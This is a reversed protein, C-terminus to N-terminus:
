IGCGALGAEEDRQDSPLCVSPDLTGFLSINPDFSGWDLGVVNQLVTTQNQISHVLSEAPSTYLSDSLGQFQGFGAEVALNSPAAYLSLTTVVGTSPLTAPARSPDHYDVTQPVFIHLTNGPNLRLSLPDTPSGIHGTSPDAAGARLEAARATISGLGSLGYIDLGASLLLTNSASVSQLYLSGMPALLEINGSSGGSAHVTVSSLGSSNLANIYIGGAISTANLTLSDINLRPSFDVGAATVTSAAGISRALLTLSRAQIPSSNTGDTITGASATLTAADGVNVSGVSLNGSSATLGANGSARVNALVLGNQNTVYLDGQSAAADLTTINTALAASAAGISGGTATLSAATVTGGSGEVISGPSATTGATLMVAGTGGNIAGNVSIDSGAGGAVLTVGNASASNVTISGDNTQVNLTGGSVSSSLAVGDSEDIYTSGNLSSTTLTGVSTNLPNASTGLTSGTATLAAGIIQGGTGTTIAGPATRTGAVLTVDGSTSLVGDLSITGGAGGATLAVPGSGGSLAGNVDISSNTATLTVGAGTASNVALLGDSQVDLVGGTASATLAVAGSDDVFIGGNSSTASVTTANTSMATTGSGISGATLQLTPASITSGADATIAGTASLSVTDAEGDIAGSVLIGAAGLTVGEGTASTVVLSGNPVQVNVTGNIAAATLALPATSTGNLFIGGDTTSAAVTGSGVNLASGATGIASATLLTENASVLNGTGAVIAGTAQLQAEAGATVPGDVTLTNGAGTVILDVNNGTVSTVTLSSNPTSVQVTGGPASATLNLAGTNVLYIDGTNATADVAAVTTNLPTGQIGIFAGTVDLSSGSVSGGNSVIEAQATLTVASGNGNVAGDLALAGGATLTVGAGSVSSVTLAGNAAVDIPGGSSTATVNLFAADSVYIGGVSSTAVLNGVQTNLAAGPSGIASGSVTLQNSVLESGVGAVVVGSTAQIYAPGSTTVLAGPNLDIDSGTGTTILDVAGSGGNVTGNVLVDAGPGSTTLVVGSGGGVSNATLSGSTGVYVKGTANASLTMAGTQGLYIDGSVATATVNPAQTNIPAGLAGVAAGTLSLNNATVLDTPVGDYTLAGGATINVSGGAATISGLALNGGSQSVVLTSGAGVSADLQSVQTNLVTTEGAAGSHFSLEDATFSFEHSGGSAVVDTAGQVFLNLPPADTVVENAPLTLTGGSSLGVSATNGNGIRIAGPTLNSANLDAPSQLVVTGSVGTGNGLTIAGASMVPNGGIDLNIQGSNSSVTVALAGNTSVDIPTGALTAFSTVTGVGTSAALLIGGGASVGSPAATDALIAGANAILGVQGGTASATVSGVTMDGSTDVIDITSNASPATADVLSFSGTQKIFISGNGSDASLSSTATPLAAGSAGINGDAGLIINQGSIKPSSGTAEISGAQSTLWATGTASVSGVLMNGATTVIADGAGAAINSLTVGGVASELFVGGNSSQASINTAYTQIAGGASGISGGAVMNLTAANIAGGGNEISGAAALDVENPGSISVVSLNGAMTGAASTTIQVDTGANINSATMDGANAVYIGSGSGSTATLSSTTTELPAGAAGIAGNAATLQLSNAALAGIPGPAQLISGAAADLSVQGTAGPVSVSDVSINGTDDLVSILSNTGATVGQLTFSNAAHVYVSGTASGSLTGADIQLAEGATGITGNAATLNLTSTAFIPTSISGNDVISSGQLTVNGGSVTDVTLQGDTLINVAQPASVNVLELPGTQGGEVPASLYINSGSANSVTNVETYVPTASSGISGSATFNVKDATVLGNPTGDISGGQADLTVTAGAGFANIIGVTMDGGTSTVTTSGSQRNQITQLTVAGSSSIDIDGINTTASLTGGTIAIPLTSSGIGGTIGTATLSISGLDTTGVDIISAGNNAVISAGTLEVTGGQAGGAPASVSDVTIMGGSNVSVTQATGVSINTLEINESPQALYVSGGFSTAAVSSVNTLLAGGAASSGIDSGARLTLAGTSIAGATTTDTITYPGASADLTVSGGPGTAVSTVLLNGINNTIDATGGNASVQTLTLPLNTIAGSSQQSVYISGVSSTANLSNANIALPSLPGTGIDSVSTLSVTGTQIVGSNAADSITDTGGTGGSVNLTVTGGSGTAIGGAGVQIGGDTNVIKVTGGSGSANASAQNVTLAGAVGSQAIYVNGSSSTASISNVQTAFGTTASGIDSTSQLNLTAVAVPASGTEIIGGSSVLTVIGTSINSTSLAGQVQISGNANTISVNNAGSVTSLDLTAPTATAPQLVYIDGNPASASLVTVATPIPSGSAGIGGTATLGLNYTSILPSGSSAALISAGPFFGGANLSVSSSSDTGTSITGVTIDEAAQLAITSGAGAIVNEATLAEASNLTITGGNGVSVGKADINGGNTAIWVYGGNGATVGNLATNGSQIVVCVCSSGGSAELTTVSSVSVPSPITSGPTGISGSTAVLDLTQATLFPNSASASQAINGSTSTLDLTTGLMSGGGLVINSQASLSLIDTGFGGNTSQISAGSELTLTSGTGTASVAINGGSSELSGSLDVNGSASLTIKGGGSSIVSASGTTLTGTGSGGDTDILVDGDNLRITGLLSVTGHSDIALSHGSAVSQGSVDITAGSELTASDTGQLVVNGTTLLSEVATDSITGSGASAYPWAGSSAGTPITADPSHVIDLTAPDLLLTGWVGQAATLNASGSFQLDGKGSVEAYGGDGSESGGRASVSGSFDTFDNSWVVVHGGSGSTGADADIIAGPSVVTEEANPINPNAGHDGGGIYATGGGTAGSVNIVADGFLGVRNGVMTVSGGTSRADAASADLTGSSVVDGEPGLLEITGGTNDIRNARVVGTNNILNTFVDKVAAASLVVQGGNATISGSNEVASTAGNTNTLLDSGVELRLLGDGALDLTATRGAALNVTGYDAVITGSNSVQGGLLTVSGGRGATITGENIVAGPNTLSSFRYRGSAANFDIAQLSSLVLSNVDLVGTRGILFGNPNVLVVQGNGQVLGFIQSPNQDLINNFAVSSSTPQKFLVSQGSSVNFTNWNIQLQSSSQNILTTNSSPNSITGQGGTVVGGTPGAVALQVSGFSLSVACTLAVPSPASPRARSRIPRAVRPESKCPSLTTRTHM